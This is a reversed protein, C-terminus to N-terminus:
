GSGDKLIPALYDVKLFNIGLRGNSHPADAIATSDPAGATIGGNFLAKLIPREDLMAQLTAPSDMLACCEAPM